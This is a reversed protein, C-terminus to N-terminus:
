LRVWIHVLFWQGSINSFLIVRGLSFEFFLYFGIVLMGMYSTRQYKLIFYGAGLLVLFFFCISVSYLIFGSVGLGVIQGLVISAEQREEVEGSQLAAPAARGRIRRIIRCVIRCIIM